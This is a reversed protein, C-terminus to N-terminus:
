IDLLRDQLPPELSFCFLGLYQQEGVLLSLSIAERTELGVKAWQDLLHNKQEPNAIRYWCFFGQNTKIIKKGEKSALFELLYLFGSKLLSISVVSRREVPVIAHFYNELLLEHQKGLAGLHEQLSLFAETQKAIMGGNFDRMEGVVRQLEASVYLRAKFLDISHDDRLFGESPLKVRFVTAEKPYRNRLLGVRKTREPYFIFATKSKEFLDDFSPTEPLVIRVIIVTFSLEEGQQADFSIIM